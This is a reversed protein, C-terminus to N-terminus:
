PDSPRWANFVEAARIDRRFELFRDGFANQLFSSIMRYFLERLFLVLQQHFQNLQAGLCCGSALPWLFVSSLFQLGHFLCDMAVHRSLPRRAKASEGGGVGQAVRRYAYGQNVPRIM